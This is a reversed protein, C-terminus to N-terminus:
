RRPPTAGIGPVRRVVNWATRQLRRATAQDLREHLLAQRYVEDDDVALAFHHTAGEPSRGYLMAYLVCAALYSGALNAHLGDVFLKVGDNAALEWAPGVPAVDVGLERGLAQYASSVRGQMGFRDEPPWTSFLIPRAGGARAAAVLRRAPERMAEPADLAEGSRGQLVVADWRQERLLREVEGDDVHQGLSMGSAGSFRTVLPPAARLSAAIRELMWPLENYYTLSNGVLLVRRAGPPEPEAALVQGGRRIEISGPRSSGQAALPPTAAAAALALALALPVFRSRTARGAGGTV